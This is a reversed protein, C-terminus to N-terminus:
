KLGRRFSQYHRSCLGRSVVFSVCGEIACVEVPRCVGCYGDDATARNWCIGGDLSKCIGYKKTVVGRRLDQRYHNGCMGQVSSFRDCPVASCPVRAGFAGEEVRKIYHYKCYGQSVHSKECDPYHCISGLYQEYSDEM